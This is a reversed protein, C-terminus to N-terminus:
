RFCLFTTTKQLLFLILYFILNYIIGLFDHKRGLYKPDQLKKKKAADLRRRALIDEDLRWESPRQDQFHRTRLQHPKSMFLKNSQITPSELGSTSISYRDSLLGGVGVLLFGIDSWIPSWIDDGTHVDQYFATWEIFQHSHNVSEWVPVGDNM